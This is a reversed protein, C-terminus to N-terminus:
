FPSHCLSCFADDDDDNTNLYQKLTKYKCVNCTVFSETDIHANQIYKASAMCIQNPDNPIDKKCEDDQNIPENKTFITIALKKYQKKLKEDKKKDCLFQLRTLAASCDAFYGCKYSVMAYLSYINMENLFLHDDCFDALVRCIFLSHHDIADAHIQKTLLIYLHYAIAGNWCQRGNQNDDNIDMDLLLDITAGKDNALLMEKKRHKDIEIASAVYLKQLLFPDMKGSQKLKEVHSMLMKAVQLHDDCSKYIDIVEFVNRNNKIKDGILACFHAEEEYEVSLAKGLSYDNYKVCNTIAARTDGYKILADASEATLGNVIFMQAIKKLLNSSPAIQKVIQKLVVFDRCKYAADTANKYDKSKLYYKFADKWDFQAAYYDGIQKYINNTMKDNLYATFKDKKMLAIVKDVNGVRLYLNISEFRDNMKSYILQADDINGFYAYIQARQKNRDHILKLRKIFQIGFYDGIRILSNEALEFELKNLSQAALIRWLKDYKRNSKSQLNLIMEYAAFLNNNNDSSLMEKVGSLVACEYRIQHKSLSPKDPTMQLGDLDFSIIEFDRFLCICNKNVKCGSNSEVNLDDYIILKNKEVLAFRVPDSSSWLVHRVASNSEREILIEKNDVDYVQLAGSKNMVSIRSMDYNVNIRAIGQNRTNIDWEICQSLMSYCVIDGFKRAIMLHERDGCISQIPNSSTDTLAYDKKEDIHFVREIDFVRELAEHKKSHQFYYVIYKSAVIAFLSTVILMNADAFEIWNKRIERGITNYLSAYMKSHQQHTILVFESGCDGAISFVKEFEKSQVVGNASTDWFYVLEKKRQRVSYANSSSYCLFSDAFYSYKHNMQVQVFYMINGVGLLVRSGNSEWCLDNIKSTANSVSLQYLIHGFCDVFCLWNTYEQNQKKRGVLALITASPNFAIQTVIMDVDMLIPARDNYDTMIQLKGIKYAICLANGSWKIDSIELADNSLKDCFGKRITGHKKYQSADCKTYVLCEYNMTVIVFYKNKPSWEILKLEFDLEKAWERHGESDGILCLGDRYIISIKNHKSWSFDSVFSEKRVSTMDPRWEKQRKKYKWVCILGANDTATLKNMNRDFLLQKICGQNEVQLRHKVTITIDNNSKNKNASDPKRNTQELKLLKIIGDSTGCAIYNDDGGWALATVELEKAIEIKKHIHAYM